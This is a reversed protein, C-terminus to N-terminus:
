TGGPRALSAVYGGELPNGSAMVIPIAATAQRAAQAASSAGVVMVDVKLRVLETALAPLRELKGEASRAEFTM